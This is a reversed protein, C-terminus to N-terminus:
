DIIGVLLKMVDRSYMGYDNNEKDDYKNERNNYFSLLYNGKLDMIETKKGSKYM